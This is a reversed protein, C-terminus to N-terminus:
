MRPGSMKTGVDRACSDKVSVIRLHDIGAVDGAKFWCAGRLAENAPGTGGHSGPAAACCCATSILGTGEGDISVRGSDTGTSLGACGQAGRVACCIPRPCRAMDRRCSTRRYTSTDRGARRCRAFLQEYSRDRTPCRLASVNRADNSTKSGVCDGRPGLIRQGTVHDFGARGFLHVLEGARTQVFSQLLRILRNLLNGDLLM